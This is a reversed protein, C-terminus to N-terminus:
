ERAFKARWRKALERFRRFGPRGILKGIKKDMKEDWTPKHWSAAYHHIAVTKDTIVCVKTEYDIPCFYEKPYINIGACCQIQDVNKLGHTILLEDMYEVVTKVNFTGDVNVFHLTEYTDLFEKYLGLGPNAGLGLGPAVGIVDSVLSSRERGMFPGANIIHTMPKIIEVDTDFYLGGYHYLIYFRAYDSVFAYKKMRYAEKVYANINVDFNEENWEKIEYDPLFKKWSNICKIALEPLPNHGFWCYHIIKPIM